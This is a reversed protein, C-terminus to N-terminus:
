IELELKINTALVYNFLKSWGVLSSIPSGFRILYSVGVLWCENYTERTMEGERTMQTERRMWTDKKDGTGRKDDTDRKEDM